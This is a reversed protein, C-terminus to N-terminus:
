QEPLLWAHVYNATDLYRRAAEQIVRPDLKAVREEETLSERIDWGRRDYATILGMWYGNQRRNTELARRQQEQVTAVEAATPPVARLSDVHALM